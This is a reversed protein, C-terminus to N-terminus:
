KLELKQRNRLDRNKLDYKKMLWKSRKRNAKKRKKFSKLGSRESSEKLNSSANPNQDTLIRRKAITIGLFKVKEKLIYLKPLNNQYSVSAGGDMYENDNDPDLVIEIRYKGQPLSETLTPSNSSSKFQLIENGSEDLIKFEAPIDRGGDLTINGGNAGFDLNLQDKSYGAIDNTHYIYPVSNIEYLTRKVKYYTVRQKIKKESDVNLKCSLPKISHSKKKELGELEVADVMRNESFAYTSNFPYRRELPDVAFFRGLRSDHMRYTYNYSNGAGKIGDDKEQGQFAYRYNSIKKQGQRGQMLMGYPYYDSFAVIEAETNTQVKRDTTIELVNGLHNTLEYTRHGITHINSQANVLVVVFFLTKLFLIKM